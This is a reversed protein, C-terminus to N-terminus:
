LTGYNEAHFTPYAFLETLQFKKVLSVCCCYNREWKPSDLPLQKNFVLM